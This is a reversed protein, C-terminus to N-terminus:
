YRYLETCRVCVPFIKNKKLAQRYNVAREANWLKVFSKEKINGFAYSFNLCPRVEGDPFVYAVIWPSLCRAPYECPVYSIEQYYNRLGARSFNPYFDVSFGRDQKLIEQMKLYLKEPDIQPSFVFGEWDVSTCRLAENYPKQKDILEQNLFILNHFTLSNAGVGSAVDLLKELYECNYKTITCQLNILPKKRGTERKYDNVSKLGAIIRASLGPMGRIEDHLLADGDLSVNLEDLGAEVIEQAAKDLLSGNTIMLTHMNKRKIYRILELSKPYLLPEGGFLTINPQFCAVEDILRKYLNIDLEQQIVDSSMKKTVGGEGWQGCMKCHLNCRHTLFLTIAEPLASRGNGLRYALYARGRRTLVDLAYLPQKFFKLVFRKLNRWPM